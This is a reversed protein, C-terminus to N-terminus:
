RLNNDVRLVALLQRRTALLARAIEAHMTRFRDAPTPVSIAYIQGTRHRFATGVASIEPANEERDYALGTARAEDLEQVLRDIAPKDSSGISEVGLKLAEAPSLLALCAKGNATNHLPFTRGVRSVACIRHRGLHQDIFMLHNHRLEALDVTEGTADRLESLYPRATDIIEPQVEGALAAIEPGLRVGGSLSAAILMGESTLAGVIRQVTSRPLDVEQALQSLTLGDPKGKLVRLLAVARSVVQIGTGGHERDEAGAM